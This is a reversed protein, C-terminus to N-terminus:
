AAETPPVGGMGRPHLWGVLDPPALKRVRAEYHAALDADFVDEWQGSKGRHFFDTTSKWIRNATDPAREKARSRMEDFTAAKVLAPWRDEPVTIGLRDALQRM